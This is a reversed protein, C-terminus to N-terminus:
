NCQGTAGVKLISFTGSGGDEGDTDGAFKFKLSVLQKEPNSITQAATAWDPQKFERWGFDATTASTSAPLPVFPNAYGIKSDQSGLGMELIIDIDSKYTVCVGRSSTADAAENASRSYNFGIGVYPKYPNTGVILSFEGCIGHCEKILDAFGNEGTVDVAWTFSSKGNDGSDTYSYWYGGTKNGTPVQNADATGDWLDLHWKGDGDDAPPTPTATSTPTTTTPRQSSSSRATVPTSVSSSSAIAVPAVSSSTNTVPIIGGGSSLPIIGGGPNVVGNSYGPTSSASTPFVCEPTGTQPNYQFVSGPVSTQCFEPTVQNNNNGQQWTSPPVVSNDDEGSSCAALMCISGTALLGILKKM